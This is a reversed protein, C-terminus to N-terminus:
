SVDAIGSRTRCCPSVSPRTVRTSYRPATTSGCWHSRRTAWSSCSPRAPYMPRLTTCLHCRQWKKGDVSNLLAVQLDGDNYATAWLKGDHRTFRWFGWTEDYIPSPPSWTKGDSTESRVTWALGGADRIHGGPVRSIAYVVLKSGDVVFKPDRIDRDPMFIEATPTWSDGLDVSAYVKLRAKPTGVQSTEGGRFVLWTRNNWSALDSNENHLGDSYAIRQNSVLGTTPKPGASATTAPAPDSSCGALAIVAALACTLACTLVCTLAHARQPSPVTARPMPM